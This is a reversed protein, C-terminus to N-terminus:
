CFVFWGTRFWKECNYSDHQIADMIANVKKNLASETQSVQHRESNISETGGDDTKSSSVNSGLMPISGEALIERMGKRVLMAESVYNANSKQKENDDVELVWKPYNGPIADIENPWTFLNMDNELERHRKLENGNCFLFLNIASARECNNIEAPLSASICELAENPITRRGNGYARMVCRYLQASAKTSSPMVHIKSDFTVSTSIPVAIDKTFNQVGYPSLHIGHLVRYAKQLLVDLQVGTSRFSFPDEGWIGKGKGIGFNALAFDSIQTLCQVVLTPLFPGRLNPSLILEQTSVIQTDDVGCFVLGICQVLRCLSHHLKRSKAQKSCDDADSQCQLASEDSDFYDSLSFVDVFNQYTKQESIEFPCNSLNRRCPNLASCLAIIASAVPITVSKAVLQTLANPVADSAKRASMVFKWYWTLSEAFKVLTSINMVGEDHEEVLECILLSDKSGTEHPFSIALFLGAIEIAVVSTFDARLLCRKQRESRSSINQREGQVMKLILSRERILVKILVALVSKLISDCKEKDGRNQLQKALTSAITLSTVLLGKSQPHIENSLDFINSRNPLSGSSVEICMIVAAILDDVDSVEKLFDNDNDCTVSLINSHIIDIFFHSMQLLSAAKKHDVKTSQTEKGQDESESEDSSDCNYDDVRANLNIEARSFLRSRQDLACIVIRSLFRLLNLHYGEQIQMCVCLIVLLSSKPSKYLSWSSDLVSPILGELRSIELEIDDKDLLDSGHLAVFDNVVEYLKHGCNDGSLIKYRKLIGDASLLLQAKEQASLDSTEHRGLKKLDSCVECFQHRSRSLVTSSELEELFTSLTKHSLERWHYGRRGPSELHPTRVVAIPASVPQDIFEIAKKLHHIAIVEAEQINNPQSTNQSWWVYFTATLWHMRICLVLFLRRIAKQLNVQHLTDSFHHLLPLMSKVINVDDEFRM